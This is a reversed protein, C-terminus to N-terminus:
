KPTSLGYKELYDKLHTMVSTLFSKVSKCKLDVIELHSENKNFWDIEEIEKEADQIKSIMMGYMKKMKAPLIKFKQQIENPLSVQDKELMKNVEYCFLKYNYLEHDFDRKWFRLLADLSEHSSATSQALSRQSFPKSQTTSSGQLSSSPMSQGLSGQSSPYCQASSGHSSSSNSNRSQSQASSVQSSTTSQALNASSGQLSPMTLSEPPNSSPKLQQASSGQLSPKSQALNESARVNRMREKNKMRRTKQQQSKHPVDFALKFIVDTIWEQNTQTSLKLRKLAKEEKESARKESKRKADAEKEM